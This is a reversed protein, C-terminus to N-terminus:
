PLNRCNSFRIMNFSPCFGRKQWEIEDDKECNLAWNTVFDISGMNAPDHWDALENAGMPSGLWSFPLSSSLGIRKDM